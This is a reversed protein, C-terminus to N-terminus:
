TKNKAILEQFLTEKPQSLDVWYNDTRNTANFLKVNLITALQYALHFTEGLSNGKFLDFSYKNKQWLVVEYGSDNPEYFMSVYEIEPLNQWKKHRKFLGYEYINRYVQNALDLELSQSKVLRTFFFVACLVWMFYHYILRELGPSVWFRIYKLENLISAIFFLIYAIGITISVAAFFRKWFAKKGESIIHIKPKNKLSTFEKATLPTSYGNFSEKLEALLNDLPVKLDVWHKNDKSVSDYLGIQLKKASEYGLSLAKSYYDTKFLTFHKNKSHGLNVEYGDENYFLFVYAIQPLNKWRGFKLFGFNYAVKYRKKAIDFHINKIASLGIGITIFIIILVSIVILEAFYKEEFTHEVYIVFLLIAAIAMTFFIASFVREWLPNNHESIISNKNNM